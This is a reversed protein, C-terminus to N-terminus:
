YSKTYYWLANEKWFIINFATFSIAYTSKELTLCPSVKFLFCRRIDLGCSSDFYIQKNNTHGFIYIYLSHTFM